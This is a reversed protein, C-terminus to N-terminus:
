NNNIKVIGTGPQLPFGAIGGGIGMSNDSEDAVVVYTDAAFCVAAGLLITVVSGSITGAADSRSIVHTGFYDDYAIIQRGYLCNGDGGVTIMVHCNTGFNCNDFDGVIIVSTKKEGYAPIFIPSVMMIGLVAVVVIITKQQM